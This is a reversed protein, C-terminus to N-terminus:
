VCQSAVLAQLTAERGYFDRAWALVSAIPKRRSFMVVLM